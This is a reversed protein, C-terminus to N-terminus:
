VTRWAASPRWPMELSSVPRRANADKTGHLLKSKHRPPYATNNQGMTKFGPQGAGNEHDTM